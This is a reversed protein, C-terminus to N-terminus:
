MAPRNELLYNGKKRLTKRRLKSILIYKLQKSKHSLGTHSCCEQHWPSSPNCLFPAATHPFGHQIQFQGLDPQVKPVVQSLPFTGAMPILHTKLTRELSFWEVIGDLLVFKAKRSRWSTKRTWSQKWEVAGSYKCLLIHLFFFGRHILFHFWESSEIGRFLRKLQATLLQVIFLLIIFLYFIFILFFLYFYLTFSGKLWWVGRWYGAKIKRSNRKRIHM